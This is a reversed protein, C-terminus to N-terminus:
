RHAKKWRNIEKILHDTSHVVKGSFRDTDALAGLPMWACLVILVFREISPQFISRTM